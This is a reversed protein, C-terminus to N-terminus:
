EDDVENKLINVLKKMTNKETQTLTDKQGKKYISLLYMKEVTALLYIVRYGGSKGSNQSALRIKRLGGTGVILDGSDPYKIIQSQLMRFEDDSILAKRQAEFM